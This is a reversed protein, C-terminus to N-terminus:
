FSQLDIRLYKVTSAGGAYPNKACISRVFADKVCTNKIGTSKIGILVTKSIIVRSFPTIKSSIDLLALSNLERKM